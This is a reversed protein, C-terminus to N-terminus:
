DGGGPQRVTLLVGPRFCSFQSVMRMMIRVRVRVRVRVVIM